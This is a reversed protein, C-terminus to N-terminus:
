ERLSAIPFHQGITAASGTGEIAYIAGPSIHLKTRLSALLQRLRRLQADTPQAHDFDGVLVISICREDMRQIGPAPAASQQRTWRQGVQLEGDVGGDGNCIVFHDTLGDTPSAITYANGGATRS